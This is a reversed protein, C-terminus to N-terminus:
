QCVERLAALLAANEEATRVAIRFWSNDLGQFNACRRILFGRALLPEYLERSSQFLLYNAKGPVVRMGCSRLGQVLVARQENVYSRSREIWGDVGLAAVGADLAPGSVAWPQGADAIRAILQTDSCIGYGLRLGAMAYIKTFARMIVLNPYRQCLPVASKEETFDLFCEDIVVTVGARAAADVVAEVVNPAITLGTPNNPNCLFALRRTLPSGAERQAFFDDEVLRETIGFDDEDRLAHRVIRAGVKELAQEYESFCPATVLAEQPAVVECVRGIFDSAGATCVINSAPVGEVRALAARLSRCEGDPYNEYARVNARLVEVVQAPMGLPNINASFDVVDALDFVDGGHDFRGMEQVMSADGGKERRAHFAPLGREEPQFTPCAGNRLRFLPIIGTGSRALSYM